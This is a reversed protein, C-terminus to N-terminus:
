RSHRDQRDRRAPCARLLGAERRILERGECEAVDRLQQPSVRLARGFYCTKNTVAEIDHVTVAM